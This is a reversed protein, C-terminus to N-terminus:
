NEKFLTLEEQEYLHIWAMTSDDNKLMKNLRLTEIWDRFYEGHDCNEQMLPQITDLPNVGQEFQGLLYKAVADTALVIEDGPLWRTEWKAFLLGANKESKSSILIPSSNFDDSHRIPFSAQIKGDRVVLLESDGISVARLTGATKTQNTTISIWLFSSFAGKKAKEIAFWPLEIKEVEEHWEPYSKEVLNIFRKVSPTHGSQIANRVLLHAWLRSFSAQTAGDAIAFRLETLKPGNKPQRSLGIADDNEDEGNGLKPISDYFIKAAIM